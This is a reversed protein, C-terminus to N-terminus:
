LDYLDTYLLQRAFIFTNVNNTTNHLLAMLINKQKNNNFEITSSIPFISRYPQQFTQRNVCIAICNLPKGMLLTHSLNVKSFCMVIDIM